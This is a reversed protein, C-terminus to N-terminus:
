QSKDCVEQQPSFAVFGELDLGTQKGLKPMM